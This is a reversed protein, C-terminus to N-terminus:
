AQREEVILVPLACFPRNALMAIFCRFAPAFRKPGESWTGGTLGHQRQRNGFRCGRGHFAQGQPCLDAECLNEEDAIDEFKM